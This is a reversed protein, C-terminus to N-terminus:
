QVTVKKSNQRPITKLKPTKKKKKKKKKTNRAIRNPTLRKAHSVPMFSDVGHNEVDKQLNLTIAYIRAM